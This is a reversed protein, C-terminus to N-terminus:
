SRRNRAGLQNWEATAHLCKQQEDYLSKHKTSQYISEDSAGKYMLLTMLPSEQSLHYSLDTM